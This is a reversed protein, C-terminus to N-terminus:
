RQCFKSSLQELPSDEKNDEVYKEIRLLLENLKHVLESLAHKKGEATKTMVSIFAQHRLVMHDLEARQPGRYMNAKTEESDAKTEEQVPALMSRVYDTPMMCLSYFLRTILGTSRFEYNSIGTASVMTDALRQYVERWQEGTGAIGMKLLEDLQASLKQSALLVSHALSLEENEKLVAPNEFYEALLQESKYFMYFKLQSTMSKQPPVQGYGAPNALLGSGHMGFRHRPEPPPPEAFVPRGARSPSIGMKKPSPSSGKEKEAKAAFSLFHKAYPNEAVFWNKDSQQGYQRNLYAFDHLQRFQGFVGERKLSVIYDRQKPALKQMVIETLRLGFCVFLSEPSSLNDCIFLAAARPDLVKAIATPDCLYCLKDISQLCFFKTGLAASEEYISIVRPLVTSGLLEVIDSQDVLIKEKEAELQYRELESEGEKGSVNILYKQPLIADLLLIVAESADQTGQSSEELSKGEVASAPSDSSSLMGQIINLVGNGVAYKCLKPSFKCLYRLTIMLNQWTKTSLAAYGPSSSGVLIMEFINDLLDEPAVLEYDKRFKSINTPLFEYFRSISDCISVYFSSALEMIERSKDDSDRYKLVNKFAGAAPAIFAEIDHPSGLSKVTLTMLPLITKQKAYDFFDILQAMYLLGNGALISYPNELAIKDLARVVNEVLEFSEVNGLKQCLLGM